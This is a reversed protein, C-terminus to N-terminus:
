NKLHHLIEEASRVWIYRKDKRFWIIQRKAYQQTHIIIWNVTEDLSMNGDLYNFIEKYGVTQLAKINRYPLLQTCEDIWGNEIMQHVRIEINKRIIEREDHLCFMHPTFDRIAKNGKRFSSFPQGTQIMMEVARILRIHNNMDIKAILDPDKETIFQQLFQIGKLKFQENLSNRIEPDIEPMDDIGDCLTQIYLGTGGCVIADTKEQYIKELIKLSDKEFDATHYHQTIDITGILHHKVANLEEESPRGVGIKLQQYIQRSDASIIETNLEQAIEIATKTKGIATPGGIVILRKM